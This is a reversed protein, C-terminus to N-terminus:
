AAEPSPESPCSVDIPLTVHVRCGGPDGASLVITGGLREVMARAMALGLGVGDAAIQRAREGRYFRDFARRDDGADLGIGTDLVDVAVLGPAPSTMTACISGAPTYALANDFVPAFLRRLRSPAACVFIGDIPALSLDLGRRAAEPQREVVLDALVQALDTPEDDEADSLRADSRALLLLDAVLRSMQEAHMVIEGLATRYEDAPRERSLALEATTRVLTVPTRLEHAADATFRAMEDVATQLRGLMGNLTATLRGIEDHVPPEHLRRGLDRATIDEAARTLHDVPALAQRAIWYTGGAAAILVLPLVTALVWALRTVVGEGGVVSVAALMRWQHAGDRAVAGAVRFPQGDLTLSAFRPVPGTALRAAVAPAAGGPLLPGCLIRGSEDRVELLVNGAALDAYEQLEDQVEGPPLERDIDAIYHGVRDLQAALQADTSRTLNRRMLSPTGIAVVLLLPVLWALSALVLRWTIPLRRMM